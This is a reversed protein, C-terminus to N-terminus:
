DGSENSKQCESGLVGSHYFETANFVSPDEVEPIPDYMTHDVVSEYKEELEAMSMVIAPGRPVQILRVKTTHPSGYRKVCQVWLRPYPEHEAGKLKLFIGHKFWTPPDYRTSTDSRLEVRIVSQDM